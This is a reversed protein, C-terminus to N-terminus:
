YNVAFSITVSFVFGNSFIKDLYDYFAARVDSPAGSRSFRPYDLILEGKDNLAEAVVSVDKNKSNFLSDLASFQPSSKDFCEDRTIIINNM